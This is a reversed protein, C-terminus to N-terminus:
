MEAARTPPRLFVGLTGAPFLDFISKRSMRDDGNGDNWIRLACRVVDHTIDDATGCAM